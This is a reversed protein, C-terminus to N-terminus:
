FNNEEEFEIKKEEEEEEEEEEEQEHQLDVVDKDLKRIKQKKFKNEFKKNKTKNKVNFNPTNLTISKNSITANNITGGFNRNKNKFLGNKQLVSSLLVKNKIFHVPCDKALLSKTIIRYLKYNVDNIKLIEKPGAMRIATMLYDLVSFSKNPKSAFSMTRGNLSLCFDSNKLLERALSKAKFIKNAPLSEEIDNELETVAFLWDEEGSKNACNNSNKQLINDEKIKKWELINKSDIMIYSQLHLKEPLNELVQDDIEEISESPVVAVNKYNKMKQLSPYLICFGGKEKQLNILHSCALHNPTRNGAIPNLSLHLIAEQNEATSIISKLYERTEEDVFFARIIYVARRSVASSTLFLIIQHTFQLIEFLRSGLISHCIIFCGSLQLHHVITTVTLKIIATIEQVDEFVLIDGPELDEVQFNSLLFHVISITSDKLTYPSVLSHCNVVVIRNFPQTFYLSSNELLEGVYTSKGCNSHGVLLNISGHPFPLFNQHEVSKKNKKSKKNNVVFSSVNNNNVVSREKNM